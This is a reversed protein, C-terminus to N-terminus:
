VESEFNRKHPPVQWRRKRRKDSREDDDLPEAELRVPTRKRSKRGRGAPALDEFEVELEDVEEDLIWQDAM